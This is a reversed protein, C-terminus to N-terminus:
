RLFKKSVKIKVNANPSLPDVPKIEFGCELAAPIFAGNSVYKGAWREVVHKYGYSFANYTKGVTAFEQLWVKCLHIQEPEPATRQYDPNRKRWENTLCGNADIEYEFGYHTVTMLKLDEM